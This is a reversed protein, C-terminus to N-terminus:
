RAIHLLDSQKWPSLRIALKAEKNKTWRGGELGKMDTIDTQLRRM